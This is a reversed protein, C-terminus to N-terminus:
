HSQSSALQFPVISFMRDEQLFQVMTAAVREVYPTPSVLDERPYLMKLLRILCLVLWDDSAFLNELTSRNHFWMYYCASAAHLICHIKALEFGEVSISIDGQEAVLDRVAQDLTQREQVFRSMLLKLDSSFSTDDGDGPQRNYQEAVLYLGSQLDDRGRNSLMLKEGDFEPLPEELSCTQKIHSFVYSADDHTIHSNNPQISIVQKNHAIQGLQSAILSLNVQTSGDFLSVLAIDRVIKQFMGSAYHERLYYRAGLITATDRVMNELLTPVFYKTVSSWLSMQNPVVHLARASFLAICDCILLDTFSDVLQARAVPLAFVTDRYIRRQLAFALTLRLATDAAGLSLACTLPRTVQFTKFIPALGHHEKGILANKSVMCQEFAISSMDMGRVGHTQFKPLHHFSTHDLKEKEVLFLSLGLPSDSREHTRALVCLASSRTANNILWKTGSLLYHDHIKRALCETAALDGGHAEETLALAIPERNRIRRSLIERQERTGAIWVPTSGLLTKSHAIAATLDRRAVSRGLTFVEDFRRLKGGYQTPVYYEHLGWADLAHCFSEPFEEHEDLEVSMKFSAPALPSVGKDPQGDSIDPRNSASPDGLAQELREAAAYFPEEGALSEKTGQM